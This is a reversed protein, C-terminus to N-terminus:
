RPVHVLLSYLNTNQQQLAATPSHHKNSYDILLTYM